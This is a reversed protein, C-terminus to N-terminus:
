NDIDTVTSDVSKSVDPSVVDKDASDLIAELDKQSLKDQEQKELELVAIRDDFKRIQDNFSHQKYRERLLKLYEMNQQVLNFALEYQSFADKRRKKEILLDAYFIHLEAFATDPVMQVKLVGKELEDLAADVDEQQVFIEARFFHPAPDSPNLSLLEQYSNLSELLRGQSKYYIAKLVSDYVAIPHADFVDNIRKQFAQQQLTEKLSTAYNKENYDDPKPKVKSDLVRIIFCASAECYPDLYMNLDTTALQDRIAEDFALFDQYDPQAFSNISVIGQYTVELEKVSAGGTLANLVAASQETLQESSLADNNVIIYDVKFQKFTNEVFFSNIVIGSGYQAQFKRILAERELQSRFLKYDVKQKKLYKKLESRSKFDAQLLYEQEVASIDEKTTEVGEEQAAIYYAEQNVSYGLSQMLIQEHLVPSVKNGAQIYQNMAAQYQSYFSRVDVDHNGLSIFQGSSQKPKEKGRNKLADFGFFVSGSFMTVGFFLVISWGIVAMNRRFFGFV